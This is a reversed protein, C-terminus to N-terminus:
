DTILNVNGGGVLYKFDVNKVTNLRHAIIVKTTTAPLNDIILQLQQETITDLNATAEDLILFEPNRLIVRLFNIIQKQGLSINESNNTVKTKLGDQFRDLLHVLGKDTLVQILQAKIDANERPKSMAAISKAYSDFIANNTFEPNGYIINDLITGQFLFPEQLIYGIKTSLEQRTYDGLNKGNYEISGKTPQLLGSLLMVLTSKGEGTPGIFAYSKGEELELSINNLILKDNNPYAFSINNLKM